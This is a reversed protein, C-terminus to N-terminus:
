SSRVLRTLFFSCFFSDEKLSPISNNTKCHWKEELSSHCVAISLSWSPLPLLFYKSQSEWCTHSKLVFGLNLLSCKEKSLASIQLTSASAATDCAYCPAAEPAVCQLQRCGVLSIYMSKAALCQLATVKRFALEGFDAEWHGESSLTESFKSLSHSDVVASLFVGFWGVLWGVPNNIFITSARLSELKKQFFFWFMLINAMQEFLCYKSLLSNGNSKLIVDLEPWLLQNVQRLLFCHLAVDPWIFWVKEWILPICVASM